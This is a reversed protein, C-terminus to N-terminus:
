TACPDQVVAVVDDFIDSPCSIEIVERVPRLRSRDVGLSATALVDVELGVLAKRLHVLVLIMRKSMVTSTRPPLIGAQCPEGLSSM